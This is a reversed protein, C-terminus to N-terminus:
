FSYLHKMIKFKWQIDLIL